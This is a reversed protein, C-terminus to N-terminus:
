YGRHHSGHNCGGERSITRQRCQAEEVLAPTHAPAAIVREQYHLLMLVDIPQTRPIRPPLLNSARQTRLGNCEPCFLARYSSCSACQERPLALLAAMMAEDYAITTHMVEGSESTLLPKQLSRFYYRLTDVFSDEFGLLGSAAERPPLMQAEMVDCLKKSLTLRKAVLEM